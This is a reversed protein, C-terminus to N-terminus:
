VIQAHDEALEAATKFIYALSFLFTVFIANLLDAPQVHWGNRGAIEHGSTM